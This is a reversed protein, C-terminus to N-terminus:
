KVGAEQAAKYWVELVVDVLAPGLKHRVQWALKPTWGKKIYNHYIDMVAVERAKYRFWDGIDTELLNDLDQASPLVESFTLPAILTAIGMEFLGHATRLGKPGWAKWNNKLQEKKSEGPMVLKKKVSTRDELATGASLEALGEEYPYHHAPTMGDVLAHALWAAEFASRELNGTKLEKVLKKYHDKILEILQNDDDDFPNFYHWPEDHAPSKRKIADPGNKGEFHLIQKVPPFAQPTGILKTLKKRAVRDIKQHTGIVRGSFKTLTTGSYM